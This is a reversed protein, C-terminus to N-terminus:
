YKFEVYWMHRPHNRKSKEMWVMVELVRVLVLPAKVKKHDELVEWLMLPPFHAMISIVQSCYFFIRIAVSTCISAFCIIEECYQFIWPKLINASKVRVIGDVLFEKLNVSIYIYHISLTRQSIVVHLNIFLLTEISCLVKMKM